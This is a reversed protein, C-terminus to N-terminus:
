PDTVNSWSICEGKWVGVQYFWHDGTLGNVEYSGVGAPIDLVSYPLNDPTLGYRLVQKDHSDTSPWWNFVITDTDIRKGTVALAPKIPDICVAPCTDYPCDPQYISMDVTRSPQVPEPTPEPTVEPTPTPETECRGEDWDKKCKKELKEECIDEKWRHCWIKEDPEKTPTPPIPTPTAQLQCKGADSPVGKDM